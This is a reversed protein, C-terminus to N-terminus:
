DEAAFLEKYPVKHLVNVITNQVVLTFADFILQKLEKYVDQWNESLFQNTGDGLAKDGNYLNEFHIRLRSIDFTLKLNDTTLYEKGNRTESKGTFRMLIDPNSLTMNSLGTGQIPLILVRGSITYPGVLYLVPGKLRLEYEGVPNKQFGSCFM